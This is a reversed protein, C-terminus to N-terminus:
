SKMITDPSPMIGDKTKMIAEPSPM